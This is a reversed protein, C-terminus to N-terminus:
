KRKQVRMGFAGCAFVKAYKNEYIPERHHIWADSNNWLEHDEARVVLVDISLRTCLADVSDANIGGDYIARVGREIIACGAADAGMIRMNQRQLAAAPRNGYLGHYACSGLLVNHQVVIEEPLSEDIWEYAQRYAYAREAYHM